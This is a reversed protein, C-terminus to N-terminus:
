STVGLVCHRQCTYQKISLCSYSLHARRCSCIFYNIDRERESAYHIGKVTINGHLEMAPVMPLYHRINNSIDCSYTGNKRGRMLLKNEYVANSSSDWIHQTKSGGVNAGNLKWEVNTAPGGSTLCTITFEPTIANIDTHLTFDISVLDKLQGANM